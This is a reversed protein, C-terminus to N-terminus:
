IIGPVTGKEDVKMYFLKLRVERSIVMSANVMQSGSVEENSINEVSVPEIGDKLSTKGDVFIVSNQIIEAAVSATTVEQISRGGLFDNSCSVEPGSKKMVADVSDLSTIFALKICFFVHAGGARRCGTMVTPGKQFHPMSKM